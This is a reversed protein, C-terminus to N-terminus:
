RGGLFSEEDEIERLASLLQAMDSETKVAIRVFEGELGPFNSCDRVLIGRKGLSETLRDAKGTLLELLAFNVWTPRLRWSRFRQREFGSYLFNRSQTLKERVDEAYTKNELAALGAEQALVNVSWPDRAQLFRKLDSARGFAAGLRLGPLSYFKTLSYVITLNSYGALYERASWRKEDPLFDVFSEDFIVRCGCTHAVELLIEFQKRKLLTGTPNHPSCLFLIDQGSLLGRWEGAFRETERASEPLPLRAWGKAGLFFPTVAAGVAEAARRYESFAPLPILVRRPKLAQLITFLLEGAGNGLIINEFPLDYLESMRARLSVSEPDPYHVISGLKGALRELVGDPPGFPNINASLDIFRTRGYREKAQYINGGHM